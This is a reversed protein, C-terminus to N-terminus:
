KGVAQYIFRIPKQVDPHLSKSVPCAQAVHEIKPRYSEPISDPLTAVMALSAIRRPSANMEKEIEISAGEFPIGDRKAVIAMTTLICSSLAAAVLDTPSFNEGKGQNDKPADTEIESGSPEHTLKCHLDGTYISHMKVM